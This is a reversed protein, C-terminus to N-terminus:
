TVVNIFVVATLYNVCPDLIKKIYRLYGKNQYEPLVGAFEIYFTGDLEWHGSVFGVIEGSQNKHVIVVEPTEVDKGFVERHLKPYIDKNKLLKSPM